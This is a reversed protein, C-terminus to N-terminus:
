QIRDVAKLERSAVEAPLPAYCLPKALKQGDTLVWRLFGTIAQRKAPNGIHEPVLIWSFSSIPYADSGGANTISIRFDDPMHPAAAKAAATITGSDAQVFKGSANQVSGMQVGGKLAYTAELYGFTYPKEKILKEVGQNFQGGIGVPFTVFDGRGVRTRWSDSVKSLYDTWIYTTGSGDTRFVVTLDHAPLPLGPNARVLEPDNWRTVRGLYIGSLAAPTFRVPQTFGPLNYSPVVAGLVAPFEAIENHVQHIEADTMPDDSAGFDVTGAMTRAIGHGSGVPEYSIQVEPHLQRYENSWRWLIPYIFTSGASLVTITKAAIAVAAVLLCISILRRM